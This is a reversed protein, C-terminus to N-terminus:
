HTKWFESLRVADHWVETDPFTAAIDALLGPTRMNFTVMERHYKELFAIIETQREKTPIGSKAEDFLHGELAVTKLRILRHEQSEITVNMSICRTNLAEFHEKRTKAAAHIQAISKNSIIVLSGQYKFSPPAGDAAKSSSWRLVRPDKTDIAHKVMNLKGTTGTLMEDADDLVIICGQGSYNFFMEYMKLESLKGSIFAWRGEKEGRPDLTTLVHKVTHSKGMGGAGSLYLARVKGEKMGKAYGRIVDFMKTQFAAVGQEKKTLRIDPIILEPEAVAKLNTVNSM